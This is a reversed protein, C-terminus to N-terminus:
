RDSKSKRRWVGWLTEAIRCKAPFDGKSDILVSSACGNKKRIAIDLVSPLLMASYRSLWGGGASLFQDDDPAFQNESPSFVSGSM